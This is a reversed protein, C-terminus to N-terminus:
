DVLIEEVEAFADEVSCVRGSDSDKIGKELKKRLDDIDKAIVEEPAQTIISTFKLYEIYDIVKGSLEDPLTEVMNCLEQKKATM